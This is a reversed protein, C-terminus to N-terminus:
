RREKNEDTHVILRWSDVAVRYFAHIEIAADRVIPVSAGVLSALALGHFVIGAWTSWPSGELRALAPLNTLSLSLMLGLLCWRLPDDSRRLVRISYLASASLGIGVLAWLVATSLWDAM